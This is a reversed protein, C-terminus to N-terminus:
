KGFDISVQTAKGPLVTVIKEWEGFAEHWAKLKYAGPPVDRLIFKGGADTVAIYPNDALYLYSHMFPHVDCGIEVLGTEFLEKKATMGKRPLAANFVTLKNIRMHANHPAPDENTFAVAQGRVGAQVHPHFACAKSTILIDTKSIPRGKTIGDIFVVVWRVGGDANIVYKERSLSNGCRQQDTSVAISDDLPFPASVKVTGTIEGGNAVPGGEYGWIGSALILICTVVITTQKVILDSRKEPVM